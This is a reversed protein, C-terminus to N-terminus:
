EERVVRSFFTPPTVHFAPSGFRAYRHKPQRDGGQREQGRPKEGHDNQFVSPIESALPM